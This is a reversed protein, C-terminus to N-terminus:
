DNHGLGPLNTVTRRLKDAATTLPVPLHKSTPKYGRSKVHVTNKRLADSLEVRQQRQVINLTTWLVLGFQPVNIGKWYASQRIFLKFAGTVNILALCQIITKMLSVVFRDVSNLVTQTFDNKWPKNQQKEGFSFAYLYVNSLMRNQSIKWLFHLM